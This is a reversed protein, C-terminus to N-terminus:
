IVEATPSTGGAGADTTITVTGYFSNTTNILPAVEALIVPETYVEAEAADRLKAYAAPQIVAALWDQLAIPGPIVRGDSMAAGPGGVIAGGLAQATALVPILARLGEIAASSGSTIAAVQTTLADVQAATGNPDAVIAAAQAVVATLTPAALTPAVVAALDLAAPPPDGVVDQTLAHLLVDLPAYPAAVGTGALGAATVGLTTITGSLNTLSTGLATGSSGDQSLAGGATAILQTLQQQLPGLVSALPNQMISALGSGGMLGSLLSGLGGGELAKVLKLKEAFVTGVKMQPSGGQLQLVTPIEVSM